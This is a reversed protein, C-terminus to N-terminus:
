DEGFAATFLGDGLSSRKEAARNVRVLMGPPRAVSDEEELITTGVILTGAEM